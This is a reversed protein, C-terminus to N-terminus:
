THVVLYQGVYDGSYADRLGKTAQLPEHGQIRPGAKAPAKEVLRAPPMRCEQASPDAPAMNTRLLSIAQISEPSNASVWCASHFAAVQGEAIPASSIIAV